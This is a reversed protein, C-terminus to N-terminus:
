QMPVLLFDAQVEEANEVDIETLGATAALQFTEFFDAHSVKDRLDKTVVGVCALQDLRQGRGDRTGTVPEDAVLFVTMRTQADDSQLGHDKM